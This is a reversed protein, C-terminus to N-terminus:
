LAEKWGTPFPDIEVVIVGVKDINMSTLRRRRARNSFICFWQADCVVCHGDLGQILWIEGKVRGGFMGCGM